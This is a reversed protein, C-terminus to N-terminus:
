AVQRGTLATVQAMAATWRQLAEPAWSITAPNGGSKLVHTVTTPGKYYLRVIWSLPIPPM